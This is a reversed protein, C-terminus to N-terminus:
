TGAPRPCPQNERGSSIPTEIGIHRDRALAEMPACTAFAERVHKVLWVHTMWSATRTRHHRHWMLLDGWTSPPRGAPARYMYTTLRCQGRTPCWFLLSQPEAADFVRGWFHVGNKRLHTFGPRRPPWPDPMYGRSIAADMTDFGSMTRVSARLLRRARHVNAAGAMALDPYSHMDGVMEGDGGMPMPARSAGSAATVLLAAGTLVTGAILALRSM